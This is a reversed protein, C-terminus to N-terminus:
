VPNEATKLIQTPPNFIMIHSKKGGFFVHKPHNGPILPYRLVGSSSKEYMCM